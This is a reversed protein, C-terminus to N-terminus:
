RWTLVSDTPLRVNILLNLVVRNFEGPLCPVLALHLEAPVGVAGAEQALM